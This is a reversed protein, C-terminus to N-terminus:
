PHTSQQSERSIILRTRLTRVNAGQNALIFLYQRRAVQFHTTPIYISAHLIYLCKHRSYLRGVHLMWCGVDVALEM